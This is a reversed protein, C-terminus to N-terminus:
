SARLKVLEANAAELQKKTSALQATATALKLKDGIGGKTSGSRAPGVAAAAKRLKANEQQAAQLQVLLVTDTGLTSAISKSSKSQKAKERLAEIEERLPALEKEAETAKQSAAAGEARLKHAEATASTLSASMGALQEGSAEIQAAQTAVEKILDKKSLGLTALEAKLPGLMNVLQQHAEAHRAEEDQQQKMAELQVQELQSQFDDAQIQMESAHHVSNAEGEGVTHALEEKLADSEAILVANQSVTDNLGSRLEELEASLTGHSVTQQELLGSLQVVRDTHETLEAQTTKYAAEFQQQSGLAAQLETYTREASSRLKEMDAASQALRQELALAQAQSQELSESTTANTRNAERVVRQLGDIETGLRDIETVRHDLDSKLQTTRAATRAMEEKHEARASALSEELQATRQKADGLLADFQSQRSGDLQASSQVELEMARFRSQLAAFSDQSKKLEAEAAEARAEASSFQTKLASSERKLRSQAGRAEIQEEELEQLSSRCLTLETAMKEKAAKLEDFNDILGDREIEVAEYKSALDALQTQAATGAVNAAELEAIRAEHKTMKKASVAAGETVSLTLTAQKVEAAEVEAQLTVLAARSASADTLATDLEARVGSVESALRAEVATSAESAESLGRLKEQASACEAQAAALEGELKSRVVADALLAIQGAQLEARVEAIEADALAAKSGATALSEALADKESTAASCAASLVDNAAQQTALSAAQTAIAERETALEAALEALKARSAELDASLGGAKAAAAADAKDQLAKLDASASASAGQHDALSSKVASLEEAHRARLSEAELKFKALEDQLPALQQQAHDVRIKAEAAAAKTDGLESTLAENRAMQRDQQKTLMDVEAKRATEGQVAAALENDRLSRIEDALAGNKATEAELKAAAAALESKAATVALELNALETVDTGRAQHIHAKLDGIEADRDDIARQSLGSQRKLTDLDFQVSELQIALADKESSVISQGQEAHDARTMAEQLAQKAEVAETKATSSQSLAQVMKSGLEAQKADVQELRDTAAKCEAKAEDSETMLMANVERLHVIQRIADAIEEMQQDALDQMHGGAKMNTSAPPRNM